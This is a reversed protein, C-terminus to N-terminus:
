REWLLGMATKLNVSKENELKGVEEEEVTESNSDKSAEETDDHIYNSMPHETRVSEVSEKGERRKAIVTTTEGWSQQTVSYIRADSEESSEGSAPSSARDLASSQIRVHVAISRCSRLPSRRRVPDANSGKKM